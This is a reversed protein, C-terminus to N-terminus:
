RLREVHKVEGPKMEAMDAPVAQPAIPRMKQDIFALAEDLTRSAFDWILMQNVAPSKGVVYGGSPLRWILLGTQTGNDYQAYGLDPTFSSGNNGRPKFGNAISAANKFM